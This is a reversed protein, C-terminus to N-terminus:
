RRWGGRTKCVGASDKWEEPVRGQVPTAEICWPLVSMHSCNYSSTSKPPKASLSHYSGQQLPHLTRGQWNKFWHSHQM